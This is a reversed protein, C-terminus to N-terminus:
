SSSSSASARRSKTSRRTSRRREAASSSLRVSQKVYEQREPRKEEGPLKKNKHDIYIETMTKPGQEVFQSEAWNEDRRQLINEILCAYRKEVSLKKKIAELLQFTGHFKFHESKIQFTEDIDENKVSEQIQDFLQVHSTVEEEEQKISLAQKEDELDKKYRLEM